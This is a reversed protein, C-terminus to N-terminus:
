HTPTKGRCSFKAAIAVLNERNRPARKQEDRFLAVIDQLLVEMCRLDIQLIQRNGENEIVDNM